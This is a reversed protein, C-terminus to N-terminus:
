GPETGVGAWLREDLALFDELLNFHDRGDLAVVDTVIDAWGSAGALVAM